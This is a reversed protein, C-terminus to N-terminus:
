QVNIVRMGVSNSGSADLVQITTQKAVFGKPLALSGKVHQYGGIRVPIPGLTVNDIAGSLRQGNVILKMVGAFPKKSAKDERTLLVHYALDGQERELKAARVGIANGRPDPPIVDEYLAIDGRLKEITEDARKMAAAQKEVEARAADREADASQLRTRTEDTADKAAAEVQRQAALAADREALLRGSEQVTLLKPGFKQQAGYLGSSGITAGALLLVLWRPVGRRSRGGHSLVVENSRGFLAM